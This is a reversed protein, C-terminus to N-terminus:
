RKGISLEKPFLVRSKFSVRRTARFPFCLINYLTVGVSWVTAPGAHYCHQDFWEPPAYELSGSLGLFVLFMERQKIMLLEYVDM